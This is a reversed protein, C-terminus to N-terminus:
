PKPAEPLANSKRFGRFEERLDQVQSEVVALRTFMGIGVGGLPLAIVLALGLIQLKDGTALKVTEGNNTRTM